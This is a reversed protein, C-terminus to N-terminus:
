NIIYININKKQFKKSFIKYVQNQTIIIFLQEFDHFDYLKHVTQIGKVLDVYRAVLYAKIRIPQTVTYIPFQKTRRLRQKTLVFHKQKAKILYFLFVVNKYENQSQVRIVSL